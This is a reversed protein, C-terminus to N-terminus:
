SLKVSVSASRLTLINRLYEPITSIYKQLKKNVEHRLPGEWLSIRRVKVGDWDIFAPKLDPIHAIQGKLASVIAARSNATNTDTKVAM